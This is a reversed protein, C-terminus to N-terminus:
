GFLEEAPVAVSHHAHVATWEGAVKRFVGTVRCPIETGNQLHMGYRGAAWGITGESFAHLDDEWSITTGASADTDSLYKQWAVIDDYGEKWNDPTFSIYLV